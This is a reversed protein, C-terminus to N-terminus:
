DEDEENVGENTEPWRIKFKYTVQVASEVGGEWGASMRKSFKSKELVKLRTLQDEFVRRSFQREALYNTLAKQLVYTTNTDPEHRVVLGSYSTPTKTPLDFRGGSSQSIVLTNNTQSAIFENLITFADSTMALTAASIGTLEDLVAKYVREIDVDHLGLKGSIEGGAMNIGVGASWFRDKSESGFDQQFRRTWRDIIQEVEDMHDLVWRIFIPGAHGYNSEFPKFFQAGVADSVLAPPKNIYFEILRATEGGNQAKLQHIKDYLSANGTMLAISSWPLFQEREANSSGQMRGRTRGSSFHYVFESIEMGKKNTAEDIGLVTNKLVAARQRAAHLTTDALMTDTSGWVTIAAKVASTKGSGPKEGFLNIVVGEFGTFPMLASAFGSFAAFAHIEFGPLAFTNFSRKWEELTGKRHQNNAMQRCVAAPPCPRTLGNALYETDGIAFSTMDESWGLQDRMHTAQKQKQLFNAWRTTYEMLREMQKPLAAVGNSAYIERLETISVVSKLPIQFEKVKDMPLYLRVSLCEGDKKNYLRDVIDIDNEYILVPDFQVKEKKKKDFEPPPQYYIGGHEGRVYPFLERPYQLVRQTPTPTPKPKPKAEGSSEADAVLETTEPESEKAKKFTRGLQIPSTIRGRHPCDACGGPSADEFSECRYPGATDNAKRETEEASYEPHGESLNHIATAGDSCRVAVSLCARWLLYDCDTPSEVAKRIQACGEGKISKVVIKSFKSEFNNSNIFARSNEDLGKHARALVPDPGLAIGAEDCKADILEKLSNFSYKRVKQTLLESFKPEIANYNLTGPARLIRAADATVSRDILFGHHSCLMKLKNATQVWDKTDADEEFPWYAHVGNGSNVLMPRPMGTKSCFEALSEVAAEQSEYTGAGKCDLDVFFSRMSHCNEKNRRSDDFFSGLAFYVNRGKNKLGDIKNELEEVTEAWHHKVVGQKDVAAVCYVGRSPLVAEYFTRM